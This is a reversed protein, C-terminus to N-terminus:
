VLLGELVRAILRSSLPGRVLMPRADNDWAFMRSPTLSLAHVGSRCLEVTAIAGGFIRRAAYFPHTPSISTELLPDYFLAGLSYFIYAGQYREAYQLGHPHHGVVIDAGCEAAFRALSRQHRDPWFSFPARIDGITHLSVVVVESRVRAYRISRKLNERTLELAGVSMAAAYGYEPLLDTLAVFGVTLSPLEVMVPQLAEDKSKGIGACGIGIGHEGCARLTDLIGTEGADFCHNNAFSLVPRLFVRALFEATELSSVFRFPSAADHYANWARTMVGEFNAFFIDGRFLVSALEGVVGRFDAFELDTIDFRLTGWFIM